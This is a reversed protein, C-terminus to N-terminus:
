TIRLRRLAPPGQELRRIRVQVPGRAAAFHWTIEVGPEVKGEQVHWGLRSALWSALEWAQIVAHPGHELLVESIAELTGPSTAGPLAGGPAGPPPGPPAAPTFLRRWDELRRWDLDPALRGRGEGPARETQALWSATAVVGRAPEPWGISDYIIQETQEHLD